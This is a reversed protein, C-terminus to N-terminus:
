KWLEMQCSDSTQLCVDESVMDQRGLLQTGAGNTSSINPADEQSLQSAVFKDLVRWDTVQDLVEHENNNNSNGFLSHMNQEQTLSSSSQLATSQNVDIGFPALLLKTNDLLPLQIFHEQPLKYHIDLEKKCAYPLQHYSALNTPNTSQSPSDLDAMFQSQDDYWCPSGHESM